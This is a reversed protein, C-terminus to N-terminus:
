SEDFLLEMLTIIMEQEILECLIRNKKLSPFMNKSKNFSFHNLRKIPHLDLFQSLKIRPHKLSKESKREM